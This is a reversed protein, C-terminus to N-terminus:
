RPSRLAPGSMPTVCGRRRAIALKASAGVPAKRWLTLPALQRPARQPGRGRLCDDPAQPNRRDKRHGGCGGWCRCARRGCARTGDRKKLADPQPVFNHRFITELEYRLEACVTSVRATASPVCAQCDFHGVILTQGSPCRTGARVTSHSGGCAALLPCGTAAGALRVARMASSKGGALGRGWFTQYGMPVRATLRVSRQLNFVAM